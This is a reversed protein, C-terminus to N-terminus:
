AAAAATGAAMPPVLAIDPYYAARIISAPCRQRTLKHLEFLTKAIGRSYLQFHTLMESFKFGGAGEKNHIEQKNRIRKVEMFSCWPEKARASDWAVSQPRLAWAKKLKEEVSCDKIGPIDLVNLFNEIAAQGKAFASLLLEHNGDKVAREFDAFSQDFKAWYNATHYQGDGDLLVKEQGTAPDMRSVKVGQGIWTPGILNFFYRPRESYVLMEAAAGPITTGRQQLYEAM